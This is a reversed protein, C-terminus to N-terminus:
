HAILTRSFKKQDNLCFRSVKQLIGKNESKYSIMNFFKQVHAYSHFSAGQSSTLLHKILHVVETRKFLFPGTVRRTQSKIDIWSKDDDVDLQFLNIQQDPLDQLDASQFTQRTIPDVFQINESYIMAIRIFCQDM